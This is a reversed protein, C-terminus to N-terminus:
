MFSMGFTAGFWFGSASGKPVTAGPQAFNYSFEGDNVSIVLSGEDLDCNITIVDGMKLKRPAAHLRQSNVAFFSTESEKSRDDAIGRYLLLRDINFFTTLWILNM